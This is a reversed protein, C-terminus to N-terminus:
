RKSQPPLFPQLALELQARSPVGRFGEKTKYIRCCSANSKAEAGAIDKGEVLITPSGRDRAHPPANEDESWWETWTPPLGLAALTSSLLDRAEVVHPCDRDLILEVEPNM